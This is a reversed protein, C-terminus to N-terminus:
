PLLSEIRQQFVAFPLAGRIIETGIAFSPTSNIGANVAAQM